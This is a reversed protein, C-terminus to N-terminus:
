ITAEIRDLGEELRALSNAFSLRLQGRGAEGFGDGPALVVGGEDLLREALPLSAEDTEPDLFAYFAGEPRPATVGDMDALRDDVYDRRERFAEHMAEFPEQPGTLAAIAAHQAMSPACATTSERVKTAEDVVDSTGALWGVRWGTMAYAKSCSGVTLVHEPNGTMSATSEPDRDYTLAGYVEDSVVYADHEAATEVIARVADPDAVRGTPNSPSCLMVAATDPGMRDIVREADLDYDPAPMPVEVPNADALRAQTWYNSWGPSPILLDEGPGVTALVALHLAEMGGTTVVVEGATRRVGFEAALTDAIAERLAPLGANSTYHTAGGRAADFAAETVHEPTDFDPEGVELRVPDRGAREAEDALDFMLRIRSRDCARVRATPSPM